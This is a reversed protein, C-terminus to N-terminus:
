SRNWSSRSFSTTIKLRDGEFSLIVPFGSFHEKPYDFDHLFLSVSDGSVIYNGKALRRGANKAYELKRLKEELKSRKFSIDPYLVLSDSYVKSPLDWKKGQFRDSIVKALYLIYITFIIIVPISIWFLVKSILKIRNWLKSNRNGQAM